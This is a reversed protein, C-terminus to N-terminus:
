NARNRNRRKTTWTVEKLDSAELVLFEKMRKVGTEEIGRRFAANEDSAELVNAIAHELSPCTEAFGKTMARSVQSRTGEM